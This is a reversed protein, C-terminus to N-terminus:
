DNLTKKVSKEFEKKCLLICEDIEIGKETLAFLFERSRKGSQKIYGKKKMNRTWDWAAVRSVKYKDSLDRITFEKGMLKTLRFYSKGKRRRIIMNIAKLLKNWNKSGYFAKIKYLYILKVLPCSFYVSRYKDLTNAMFGLKRLILKYDARYDPSKDVISVKVKLDNRNVYIDLTGDGTLLKSVFSEAFSRLPQDLSGNIIIKRMKDMSNLVIENLITNSVFTRYAFTKCKSPRINNIKVKTAKEFKDVFSQLSEMDYKQSNFYLDVNILENTVGMQNLYSIFDRHETILQNTFILYKICKHGEAQMQGLLSGFYLVDVHRKVELQRGSGRRHSYWIRLWEENKKKFIDVFIEYELSTREPVLSLLDIKNGKFIEQPREANSVKEIKIKLTDEPKLKLKKTIARPLGINYNFRTLFEVSKEFRIITVKICDRKNFNLNERISRKLYIGVRNGMKYIKVNFIM